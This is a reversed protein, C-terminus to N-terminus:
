RLDQELRAVINASQRVRHHDPGFIALEMRYVDRYRELASGLDGARWYTDALKSRALALEPHRPGYTAELIACARELYARAELWRGRKNSINGLEALAIASQSHNPGFTRDSIELVRHYSEEALSLEQQLMLAGGLGDLVSILQPSDKGVLRERVDLAQEFYSQALDPRGSDRYLFGANALVTATDLHDRGKNRGFVSLVWQFYSEAEPTRDTDDYLLALDNVANAYRNEDLCAFENPEIDSYAAIARSLQKEAEDYRGRRRLLAGLERRTSAIELESQGVAQRIEIARELLSQAGDLDMSARRFSAQDVLLEAEKATADGHHGSISEKAQDLFARAALLNGQDVRLEALNQLLDGDAKGSQRTVALAALLEEEAADFRGLGLYISGLWAHAEELEDSVPGAREAIQAAALFSAEAEAQACDRLARKGQEILGRAARLSASVDEADLPGCALLGSGVVAVVWGQRM